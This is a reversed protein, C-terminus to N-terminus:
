NSHTFADKVSWFSNVYKGLRGSATLLVFVASNSHGFFLLKVGVLSELESSSLQNLADTAPLFGEPTVRLFEVDSAM